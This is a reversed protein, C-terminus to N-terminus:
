PAYIAFTGSTVDLTGGNKGEQALTDLMSTMWLVKEDMNKTDGIEVMMGGRTVMYLTELNSVNLESVLSAANAKWLATLMTELAEIQGFVNSSLPKGTVCGSVSVGTVVPLAGSSLASQHSIVECHDDVLIWVGLNDVLASPQRRKISLSVTDPYEVQASLLKMRGDYEFAAALKQTDVSFINQGLILGSRSVAEEYLVDGEAVVRVNKLVFVRTILLAAVVAVFVLCAVVGATGSSRGRRGFRRKAM